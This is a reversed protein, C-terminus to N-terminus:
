THFKVVLLANFAKLSDATDMKTQSEGVMELNRIDGGGYYQASIPIWPIYRLTIRGKRLIKEFGPNKKKKTLKKYYGTDINLRLVM